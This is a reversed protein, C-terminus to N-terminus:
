TWGLHKYYSYLINSTNKYNHYKNVWTISKKKQEIIKDKNTILESLINYLSPADVNIFPHDPIFRVYKPPLETVCCLGMSLAEVSNMGYGWGGRNYVQDILIDCTRKIKQAEDFSRDEILVFEIGKEEVM